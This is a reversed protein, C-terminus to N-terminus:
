PLCGLTLLGLSALATPRVDVHSSLRGLILLTGITGVSYAVGTMSIGANIFGDEARHLVHGGASSGASTARRVRRREALCCLSGEAVQVGDVRRM